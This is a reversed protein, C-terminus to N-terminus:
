KAKLIEGYIGPRRSQIPGHGIRDDIRIEAYVIQDGKGDDAAVVKGKPDIILCRKPHVFAVYVSNEYARTRMMVDNIEGYMGYSPALIVQAGKIALIRATEPLQRDLCIMTGMRALPTPVVPFETGETNFQETGCHTKSYQSVLSGDPGFMVVTNFVQRGRLEPFGVALYVKLERALGRVRKLMPGDLPEAVSFYKDRDLDKDNGVYGDLFSEPTVVLRAGHASAQRAYHDLKRYNAEKDWRDPMVRLGAMLFHPAEGATAMAAALFCAGIAGARISM